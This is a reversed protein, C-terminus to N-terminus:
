FFLYPTYITCVLSVGPTVISINKAGVLRSLPGVTHAKRLFDDCEDMPDIADAEGQVITPPEAPYYMSGSAREPGGVQRSERCERWRGPVM